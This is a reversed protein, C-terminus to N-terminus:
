QRRTFTTSGNPHYNTNWGPDHARHHHFPCLLRATTSTPRGGESWPVEHHAECFAAPMTCGRDTCEKDRINM